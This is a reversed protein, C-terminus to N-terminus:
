LTITPGADVPAHTADCPWAVSTATPAADADSRSRACPENVCASRGQRERQAEAAGVQVLLYGQRLPLEVRNRRQAGRGGSGRKRQRVGRRGDDARLRAARARLQRAALAHTRERATRRRPASRPTKRRGPTRRPSAGSPSNALKDWAQARLSRTAKVASM